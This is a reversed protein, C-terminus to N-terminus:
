QTVASLRPAQDSAANTATPKAATAARFGFLEYIAQRYQAQGVTNTSHHSGGEVLVWKKPPLAKDYLAQGLAPDILGDKDGHVVLVPVGVKDIKTGSDFRQTILGNVPVWGWSFSDWVDPVSTFTGELILGKEDSVESSLQVAIAGGLSHGFIYRSRDPYNKALWDWGARADEYSLDERPMEGSSQGFGRYDIALVSFGMEQMRRVRHASSRVDWRAGHLYLMAPATPDAAPYWLAHLKVPSQDIKSDFNVWVDTMGQAAEIGGRRTERTPQFIWKSQQEEFSACAGLLLGGALGLVILRPLSTSTLRRRLNVFIKRM